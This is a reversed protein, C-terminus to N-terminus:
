PHFYTVSKLFIDRNEILTYNKDVYFKYIQFLEEVPDMLIKPKRVISVAGLNGGVFWDERLEPNEEEGGGGKKSVVSGMGSVLGLQSRTVDPGVSIESGGPARIISPINL